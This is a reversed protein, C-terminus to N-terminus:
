AQCCSDIIINIVRYPYSRYQINSSYLQSISKDNGVREEYQEIATERPLEVLAQM